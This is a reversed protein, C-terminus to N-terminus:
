SAASRSPDPCVFANAARPPQEEVTACRTARAIRDVIARIFPTSAHLEVGQGHMEGLLAEGDDDVFDVEKLDVVTRRGVTTSSATTWCQRLEGVWLGSLKGELRFRLERASDLLTIKLMTMQPNHM